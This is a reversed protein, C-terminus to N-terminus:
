YVADKPVIATAIVKSGDSGAGSDGYFWVYMVDDGLEYRWEEVTSGAPVLGDLKEQPGFFSGDPMVFEQTADPEGLADKVEQRTLGVEPEVLANQNGQCGAVLLASLALLHALLTLKKPYASNM